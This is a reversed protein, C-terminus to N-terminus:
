FGLDTLVGISPKRLRVTDGPSKSFIQLQLFGSADPVFTGEVIAVMDVGPPELDASFARVLIIRTGTANLRNDQSLTAAFRTLVFNRKVALMELHRGSFTTTPFLTLVFNRKVAPLQWAKRTRVPWGSLGFLTASAHIGKLSPFAEFDQWTLVRSGMAATLRRQKRLITPPGTLTRAGTAAAMVYPPLGPGLRTLTVPIGTLTRTTVAGTMRKARKLGTARGVLVRVGVDTGMTYHTAPAQENGIYKGAWPLKTGVAASTLKVPVIAATLGLDELRTGTYWAPTPLTGSVTTNIQKINVTQTPANETLLTSRNSNTIATGGSFGLTTTTKRCAYFFNDHAPTDQRAGAGEFAGTIVKNVFADGVFKAGACPYRDGDVWPNGQGDGIAPLPEDGAWLEVTGGRYYNYASIHGDYTGTDAWGSGTDGGFFQIESLSGNEFWNAYLACSFGQRLDFHGDNNLFTNFAYVTGETKNKIVAEAVAIGDDPGVDCNDFLNHHAIWRMKINSDFITDGSSFAGVVGSDYGGPKKCLDHFNNWCIRVGTCPHERASGDMDLVRRSNTGPPDVTYRATDLVNADTVSTVYSGNFKWAPRDVFSACTLDCYLVEMGTMDNFADGDGPTFAHTTPNTYDGRSGFVLFRRFHDSAKCRLLRFNVSRRAQIMNQFFHIGRITVNPSNFVIFGERCDNLATTHFGNGTITESWKLNSTPNPRMNFTVWDTAVAPDPYQKATRIVLPNDKTFGTKNAVLVADGTYNATGTCIIHQGPVVRALAAVLTARNTVTITPETPHTPVPVDDWLMPVSHAGGSYIFGAAKGTLDFDGFSTGLGYTRKFAAPYGTLARSGTAAGLGRARRTTAAPGTLTLTGPAAAIMKNANAVLTAAQWAATLSGQAMLLRRAARLVLSQGTLATAGFAATVVKDGTGSYTLGSALGTLALSGQASTIVRTCRTSAAQGALSFSGNVAAVSYTRRWTAAQGSLALTGLVASITFVRVNTLTAAQGTLTFSGQVLPLQRAARFLALQGALALSAQSASLQRVAREAAAQGTLALTGQAATLKRAIRLSVVQGSTSFSGQAAALQLARKLGATQGTLALTGLAATLSRSVTKSLTAAQGSLTLTGQAASTKLGRAFAAAQGALTFSGQASVLSRGRRTTAAQGTLAFGPATAPVLAFGIVTGLAGGGNTASGGSIATGATLDVIQIDLTTNNATVESGQEVWDGGTEGTFSAIAQALSLTVLTVGLRNIGTPTVTPAPVPSAVPVSSLSASEYPTPAFSGTFVYTRALWAYNSGSGTPTFAFSGSGETGNAIKWFVYASSSTGAGGHLLSWGATDATVTGSTDPRIGVHAILLDGANVTLPLTVTQGAVGSTTGTSSGGIGGLAPTSGVTGGSAAAALKKGQKTGATQGSLGLSGQAASLAYTLLPIEVYIMINSVTNAASWSSSSPPSTDDTQWQLRNANSGATHAIDAQETFGSGPTVGASGGQANIIGLGLSTASMASTSISPSGSASEATNTNVISSGGSVIKGCHSKWQTLNQPTSGFTCTGTSASSARAYFFALVHRNGLAAQIEIKTWSGMGTHTTSTFAISAASVAAPRGSVVVVALDGAAVTFSATTHTNGDAGTNNSALQTFSPAM